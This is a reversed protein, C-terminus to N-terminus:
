LYKTLEDPLNALAESKSSKYEENSLLKFTKNVGDISYSTIKKDDCEQKRFMLDTLACATYKLQEQAEESLNKIKEETLRTNINNDIERSAKLVLSNFSDEPLVGFYEKSYYEYNAYVM